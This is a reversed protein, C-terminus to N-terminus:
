SIPTEFHPFKNDQLMHIYRSLQYTYNSNISRSQLTHPNRFHLQKKNNEISYHEKPPSNGEKAEFFFHREFTIAMDKWQTSIGKM